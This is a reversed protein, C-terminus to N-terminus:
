FHYQESPPRLTAQPANEHPWGGALRTKLKTNPGLVCKYSIEIINIIVKCM